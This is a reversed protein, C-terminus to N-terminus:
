LANSLANAVAEAVQKVRPEDLLGIPYGPIGCISLKGTILRDWGLAWDSETGLPQKQARILLVNGAYAKASYAAYAKLHADALVEKEYVQSHAVGLRRLLPDFRSEFKIQLRQWMSQGREVLYAAKQSPAVEYFNCWERDFRARLRYIKQQMASCGPLPRPYGPLPNHVMVLLAVEQGQAQLQQAMEFAVDGGLCWGGLLYPGQPQLTRIEAIYHAAM